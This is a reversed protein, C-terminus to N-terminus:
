MFEQKTDLQTLVYGAKHTSLQFFYMLNDPWGVFSSLGLAGM